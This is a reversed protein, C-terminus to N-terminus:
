TADLANRPHTMVFSVTIYIPFNNHELKVHSSSDFEVYRLGWRVFMTNRGYAVRSVLYTTGEFM